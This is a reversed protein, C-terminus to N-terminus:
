IGSASSVVMKARWFGKGQYLIDSTNLALIQYPSRVILKIESADTVVAVRVLKQAPAQAALPSVLGLFFGLVILVLSFLILGKGLNTLM